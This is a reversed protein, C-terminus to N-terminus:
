DVQTDQQVEKLQSETILEQRLAHEAAHASDRVLVLDVEQIRDAIKMIEEDKSNRSVDRIYAARIRGPYEKIIEAYLFADRQGSDGILVFDIPFMDLIKRIKEIKHRHSGGGSKLLKWLSTKLDQLLFPGRPIGQTECFDELFDYLNWESSSVYFIPNPNSDGALVQYFTAVGAFPLRTKANKTLILRLKRLAQTAHSVLITDDVDSIVGFLAGDDLIYVEKTTTLPEQEDVIKDLVAYEAVHWGTETVPEEFELMTEFYGSNDTTVVTEKGKFSVQVRIDPIANAMYRSIMAKFNRRKRDEIRAEYLKRDDLVHGKLIVRKRTGFGRYPLIVPPTLLGLSKKARM